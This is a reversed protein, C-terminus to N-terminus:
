SSTKAVLRRARRALLAFPRTAPYSEARLLLYAAARRGLSSARHPAVGVESWIPIGVGPAPVWEWLAVRPLPDEGPAGANPALWRAREVAARSRVAATASPLDGDDSVPPRERALGIPATEPALSVKAAVAPGLEGLREATEADGVEIRSASTWLGIAARGGIGSAMDHVSQLRLTVPVPLRRLLTALATLEAARRSQGTGRAVPFGPEIQLVVEGAGRSALALEVLGAVGTSDLRKHAVSYRSASIVEVDDGAAKRSLVAGLLGRSALTMPPPLSGVVLVKM